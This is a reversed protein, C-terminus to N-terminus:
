APTGAVSKAQNSLWWLAAMVVLVFPISLWNLVNWGNSNLLVGSSLSSTIMVGFICMENFGQLKARENPMAAGTLLTTAGTFMFNWGLGLLALAVTFNMIEVGQLAIACCLLVLLCGLGMIRYVGFRTILSGTFLGPAFMGIIHWELVMAASAYPHSCMAMALPTAVMLLNMVGYALAGSLVAVWAAPASLIEKLSRPPATTANSTGSMPPLRLFQVLILTLLAFGALTFYTGAFNVSTFSRSLKSLEPGIIGGAIGGTLVLSIAKARFGPKVSDAFEAAAFRYSSAFATYVGTIFTGFCLLAMSHMTVGSGATIAGIVAFVAGLSYGARRGYKQMLKAALISFVASGLVYSTVPLTALLKNPALVLGALGNVAILTVNNTLLCAQLLALLGIQPALPATPANSTTPSIM